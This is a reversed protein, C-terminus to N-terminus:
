DYEPETEYYLRVLKKTEKRCFPCEHKIRWTDNNACTLCITHGCGLMILDNSGNITIHEKCIGCSMFKMTKTDGIRVELKTNEWETITETREDLVCMLAFKLSQAHHAHKNAKQKWCNISKFCKDCNKHNPCLVWSNRQTNM